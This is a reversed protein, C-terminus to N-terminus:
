AGRPRPPRTRGSVAHLASPVAMSTVALLMMSVYARTAEPRFSQDRYRLGGLFFAVGLALLLNALIAGVLSALVMDFLGARLAVVGIILEPANGFTSNLLGGVADGTYTALQETARVIWSAIPVIALAAAFFVLPPSAGMRDLAVAVPVFALLWNVTPVERPLAGTLRRPRHHDGGARKGPRGHRPRAALRPGRDGEGALLGGPLPEGGGGRELDPPRAGADEVLLFPITPPFTALVVLLCSGLAGRLDTATIAPPRAPEPLARIRAVMRDAEAEDTIAAVGEPCPASSSPAPRRPTPPASGRSSSRRRRAREAISTLVYMVGDVLGWAVNCALAAVLMQRVEQRGSEAVSLSCTFTLVMILGFIIESFRDVPDLPRKQYEGVVHLAHTAHM